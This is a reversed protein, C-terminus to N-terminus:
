SPLDVQFVVGGCLPTSSIFILYIKDRATTAINTIGPEALWNAADAAVLTTAGFPEVEPSNLSGSAAGTREIVSGARKVATLV